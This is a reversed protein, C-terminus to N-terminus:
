MGKRYHSLDSGSGEEEGRTEKACVNLRSHGRLGPQGCLRHIEEGATGQPRHDIGVGMIQERGSLGEGGFALRHCECRGRTGLVM